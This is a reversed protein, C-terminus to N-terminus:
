SSVPDLNFALALNTASDNKVGTHRGTGAWYIRVLCKLKVLLCTCSCNSPHFCSFM